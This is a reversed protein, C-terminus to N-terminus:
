RKRKPAKSRGTTKAPKVRKTAKVPKAAKVPKGAKPQTAAKPEKAATAKTAKAPKAKRTRAREAVAIADHVWSALQEVDELIEGPVPYYSMAPGDPGEPRFPELGLAEFRPRTADDVKLWLTDDDMLAFFRARAYVGVGGFMRKATVPVVRGLQELAFGHFGEDLGAM